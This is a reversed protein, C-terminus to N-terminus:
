GAPPKGAAAELKLDWVQSKMPFGFDRHATEAVLEFGAREYIRRAAHLVDQTWLTMKRYGARRAFAICENVLRSGLGTGRAWPEVLLLRLKAVTDSKKVLFISGAIEGNVEAIWCRERSADFKQLFRAGIEAVLAEFREDWGYEEAYLAGHRHIVWGIDGTRHTRLKIESQRGEGGLRRAITEMAGTVEARAGPGLRALMGAAHEHAKRDYPAFAARGKKTLEVLARRRDEAAATRRIWGRKEFGRLIRSAYGPDLGLEGCLESATLGKRHALEFAVRMETLTLSSDLYSRDLLGIQRTYFRNFARMREAETHIRAMGDNYLL